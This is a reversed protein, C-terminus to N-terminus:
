RAHDSEREEATGASQWAADAKAAADESCAFAMISLSVLVGVGFIVWLSLGSLCLLAAAGALGMGALMWAYHGRYDPGDGEPLPCALPNDDRMLRADLPSVPLIPM